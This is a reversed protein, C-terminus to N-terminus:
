VQKQKQALRKEQEGRSLFLASDRRHSLFREKQEEREKREWLYDM